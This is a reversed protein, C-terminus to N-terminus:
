LCFISESFHLATCKESFMKSSYISGFIEPQAVERISSITMVLVKLRFNLFRSVRVLPYIVFRSTMRKANQTFPIWSRRNRLVCSFLLGETNTTVPKCFFKCHWFQHTGCIFFLSSAMQPWMESREHGRDIVSTLPSNCIGKVGGCVRMALAAPNALSFKAAVFVVVRPLIFGLRMFFEAVYLVSTKCWNGVFKEIPTMCCSVSIAHCVHPIKAVLTNWFNRMYSVVVAVSDLVVAGVINPATINEFTASATEIVGVSMIESQGFDRSVTPTLVRCNDITESLSVDSSLESTVSDATISFM